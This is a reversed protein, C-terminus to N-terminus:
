ITEIQLLSSNTRINSDDNLIQHYRIEYYKANINEEFTYKM